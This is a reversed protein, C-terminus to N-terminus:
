FQEVSEMEAKVAMEELEASAVSRIAEPTSSVDAAVVEAAETAVMVVLVLRRAMPQPLLFLVLEVMAALPIVLATPSKPLSVKKAM